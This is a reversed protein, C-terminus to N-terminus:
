ANRDMDRPDVIQLSVVQQRDIWTDYRRIERCSGDRDDRMEMATMGLCRAITIGVGPEGLVVSLCPRGVLNRSVGIVVALLRGRQNIM